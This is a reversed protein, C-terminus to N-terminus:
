ALMHHVSQHLKFTPFRQYVGSCKLSMDSCNIYVFTHEYIPIDTDFRIKVSLKIVNHLVGVPEIESVNDPFKYHLKTTANYVYRVEQCDPNSLLLIIFHQTQVFSYFKVFTEQFKFIRYYSKEEWGSDKYYTYIRTCSGLGTDPDIYDESALKMFSIPLRDLDIITRPVSITGDYIESIFQLRSKDKLEVLDRIHKM